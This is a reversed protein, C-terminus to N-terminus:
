LLWAGVDDLTRLTRREVSKNFDGITDVALVRRQQALAALNRVWDTASYAMGHLLVVPPSDPKGATVVHTTGFTTELDIEDTAVESAALARDYAAFYRQGSLPSRPGSRAGMMAAYRVAWSRPRRPSPRYWRERPRPARRDRCRTSAGARRDPSASRHDART